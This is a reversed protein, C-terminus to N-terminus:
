QWIFNDKKNIQQSKRKFAFETLVLVEHIKKLAMFGAGTSLFDDSM